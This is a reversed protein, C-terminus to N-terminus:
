GAGEGAAAATGAAQRYDERLRKKAQSLAVFDEANSQVWLLTDLAKRLRLVKRDAEAREMRGVEVLRDLREALGNVAEALEAIQEALPVRPATM